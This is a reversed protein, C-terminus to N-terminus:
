GDRWGDIQRGIWVDKFLSFFVSHFGNMLWERPWNVNEYDMERVNMKIKYVEETKKFYEWDSNQVDSRSTKGM